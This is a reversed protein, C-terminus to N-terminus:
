SSIATLEIEEGKKGATIVTGNKIGGRISLMSLKDEILKQIARKLPRAGYKSDYGTELILEKAPETVVLQAQRTIEEYM